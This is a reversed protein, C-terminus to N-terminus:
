KGGPCYCTIQGRTFPLLKNDARAFYTIFNVDTKRQPTRTTQDKTKQTTNQQDNNNKKRKSQTTEEKEILPKQDCRPYRCVKNQNCRYIGRVNIQRKHQWSMAKWGEPSIFCLM